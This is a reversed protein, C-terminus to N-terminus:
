FGGQPHSMFVNGEETDHLGGVLCWRRGCPHSSTAVVRLMGFTVINRGLFSVVRLGGGKGCNLMLRSCVCLPDCIRKLTQEAAGHM